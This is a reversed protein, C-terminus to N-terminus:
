NRAPTADRYRQAAAVSKQYKEPGETRKQLAGDVGDNKTMKWLKSLSRFEAQTMPADSESRARKPAKSYPLFHFGDLLSLIGSMLASDRRTLM